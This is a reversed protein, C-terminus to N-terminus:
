ISYDCITFSTGEVAAAVLFKDRSHKSCHMGIKQLKNYNILKNWM